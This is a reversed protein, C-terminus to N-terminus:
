RSIRHFGVWEYTAASPAMRFAQQRHVRATFRYEQIHSVSFWLGSFAIAVYGFKMWSRLPAPSIRRPKTRRDASSLRRNSLRNEGLSCRRRDAGNMVWPMAHNQRLVVTASM